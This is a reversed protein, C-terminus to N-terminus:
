DNKPPPVGNARNLTLSQGNFYPNPSVPNPALSPLFSAYAKTSESKSKGITTNTPSFDDKLLVPRLDNPDADDIYFLFERDGKKLAPSIMISNQRPHVFKENDPYNSFYFRLTSIDVKAAAAQQEIFTIYDKITKYDYYVYRAVDFKEYAESRQMSKLAGKDAGKKPDKEYQEQDREKGNGRNISDEYRQILPVRRESYNDYYGKANAITIIQGPPPVPKEEKPEETKPQCSGLGILLLLMLPAVANGRNKM